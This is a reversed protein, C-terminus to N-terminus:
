TWCLPRKCKRSSQGWTCIFDEGINKEGPVRTHKIAAGCTRTEECERFFWHTFEDVPLGPNVARVDVVLCNVRLRACGRRDPVTEPNAGAKSSSRGVLRTSM